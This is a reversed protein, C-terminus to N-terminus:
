LADWINRVASGVVDWPDGLEQAMQNILQQNHEVTSKMGTRLHKLQNVNLKSLRELEKVVKKIRQHLDQEQDYSEDWWQDFTKFGFSQLQALMGPSSVLMFPHGIRLTKWIKESFFMQECGHCTEPIVSLFTQQYHSPQVDVAPNNAELDMDIELPGIHDLIRGYSGLGVNALENELSSSSGLLDPRFSILGRHFLKHKIAEALFLTRHWRPRRNYCLYLDKTITKPQYECEGFYFNKNAEGMPTTRFKPFITVFVTPLVVPTFKLNHQLCYDESLMNANVFFVQHQEFGVQESWQHIKDLTEFSFDGEYPMLLLIRAINNKVDNIVRQSVFKYGASPDNNLIDGPRNIQIPFLYRQGPPINAVLKHWFGGKGYLQTFDSNHKRQRMVELDTLQSDGAQLEFWDRGLLTPISPQGNIKWDQPWNNPNFCNYYGNWNDMGLLVNGDEMIKKIDAFM